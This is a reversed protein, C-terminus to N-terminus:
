VRNTDRETILVHGNNLVEVRGGSTRQEVGFSRVEKGTRDIQHFRATGLLTIVATDGNRLRTAKMIRGGKPPPQSWVEKGARDVELLQTPSAIFTNGNPLRQAVMPMALKHSWVVE